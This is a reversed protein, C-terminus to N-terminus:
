KFSVSFIDVAQLILKKFALSSFIEFSFTTHFRGGKKRKFYIMLYVLM